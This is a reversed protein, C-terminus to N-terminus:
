MWSRKSSVTYRQIAYAVAPSVTIEESFTVIVYGGDTRASEFVPAATDPEDDDDQVNLTYPFFSLAGAM